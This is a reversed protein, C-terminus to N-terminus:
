KSNISWKESDAAHFYSQSKSSFESEDDAMPFVVGGPGVNIQDPMSHDAYALGSYAAFLCMVMFSLIPKLHNFTKM